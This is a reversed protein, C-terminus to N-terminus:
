CVTTFIIDFNVPSYSYQQKCTCKDWRWYFLLMIDNPAEVSMTPKYACLACYGTCDFSTKLWTLRAFLLLNHNRILALNIEASLYLSECPPSNDGAQNASLRLFVLKDLQPSTLAPPARTQPLSLCGGVSVGATPRALRPHMRPPLLLPQPHASQVSCEACARSRASPLYIIANTNLAAALSAWDVSAAGASLVYAVRRERLYSDHELRFGGCSLFLWIIADIVNQLSINGKKICKKWNSM